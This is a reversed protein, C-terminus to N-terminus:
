NTRQMPPFKIQHQPNQIAELVNKCHIGLVARTPEVQLCRELAIPDLFIRVSRTWNAFTDRVATGMPSVEEISKVRDGVDVFVDDVQDKGAPPIDLLVDGYKLDVKLEVSLADTITQRKARVEQLFVFAGSSTNVRQSWESLSKYLGLREEEQEREYSLDFIKRYLFRREGLLCECIKLLQEKLSSNTINSKVQM